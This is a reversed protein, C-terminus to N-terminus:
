PAARARVRGYCAVPDARMLRTGRGYPRCAGYREDPRARLTSSVVLCGCRDCPFLLM